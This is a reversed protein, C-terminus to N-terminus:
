EKSDGEQNSSKKKLRRILRRIPYWLFGLIAVIIGAIAALLAGISSVAAGPGLYAMVSVPFILLICVAIIILWNIKM